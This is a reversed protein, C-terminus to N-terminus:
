VFLWLRLRATAAVRSVARDDGVREGPKKGCLGHGGRGGSAQLVEEGQVLSELGSLVYCFYFSVM